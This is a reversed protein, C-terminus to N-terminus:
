GPRTETMSNAMMKEVPIQGVVSTSPRAEARPLFTFRMEATRRPMAALRPARKCRELCGKSADRRPLASSFRHPPRTPRQASPRFVQEPRGKPGRRARRPARSGRPAGKPYRSPRPFGEHSRISAPRASIPGRLRSNGSGGFRARALERRQRRQRRDRAAASSMM